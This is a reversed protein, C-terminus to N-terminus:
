RSRDQEGIAGFNLPDLAYTRRSSRRKRPTTRVILKWHRALFTMAHEGSMKFTM